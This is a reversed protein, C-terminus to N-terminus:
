QNKGFFFDKSDHLGYLNSQLYLRFSFQLLLAAKSRDAPGLQEFSVIDDTLTDNFNQDNFIAYVSINISYFRSYSKRAVWM